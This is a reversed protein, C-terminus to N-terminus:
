WKESLLMTSRQNKTKTINDNKIKLTIIIIISVKKFLSFTTTTKRMTMLIIIVTMIMIIKNNFNHNQENNDDAYQCGYLNKKDNPFAVCRLFVYNFVHNRYIIAYQPTIEQLWALLQRTQLITFLLCTGRSGRATPEVLLNTVTVKYM